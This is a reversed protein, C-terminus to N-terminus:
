DSSSRAVFAAAEAMREAMVHQIRAITHEPMRRLEWHTLKLLLMPSTAIVDARRQDHSLLGIEGIIDGPGLSWLLQDGYLVDATGEEIAFLETSFDGQHILTEGSPVSLEAAFAALEHAEEESLDSFVPIATLRHPDM